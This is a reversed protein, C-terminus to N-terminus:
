VIQYDPNFPVLARSKGVPMVVLSPRVSIKLAFRPDLSIGILAQKLYDLARKPNPDEVRSVEQGQFEKAIVFM